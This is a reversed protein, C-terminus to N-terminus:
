LVIPDQEGLQQGLVVGLPGRDPFDEIQWEHLIGDLQQHLFRIM